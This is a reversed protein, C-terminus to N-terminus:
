GRTGAELWEHQIPHRLMAPPNAVTLSDLWDQYGLAYRTMALTAGNITIDGRGGRVIDDLTDRTAIFSRGYNNAIFLKQGDDGEIVSVVMTIQSPINLKWTLQHAAKM